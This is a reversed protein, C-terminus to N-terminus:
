AAIVETAAEIPTGAINHKALFALRADSTYLVKVTLSCTPCQAIDKGNLLDDLLMEFLDGCPCPYQLRQNEADYTLEDLEVEEYEYM